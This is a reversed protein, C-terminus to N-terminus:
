DPTGTVTGALQPFDLILQNLIRKQLSTVSLNAKNLAVMLNLAKTKDAPSALQGGYEFFKIENNTGRLYIKISPLEWDLDLHIVKYTTTTIAPTFEPTTLTINEALSLSM